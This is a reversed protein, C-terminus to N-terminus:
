APERAIGAAFGYGEAVFNANKTDTNKATAPTHVRLSVGLWNKQSIVTRTAIKKIAVTMNAMFYKYAASPTPEARFRVCTGQTLSGAAFRKVPPGVGPCCCPVSTAISM